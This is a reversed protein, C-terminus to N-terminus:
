AYKFLLKWFLFWVLGFAIVIILIQNISHLILRIDELLEFGREIILLIDENTEIGGPFWPIVDSSFLKNLM